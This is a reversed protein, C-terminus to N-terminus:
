DHIEINVNGNTQSVAPSKNGETTITSAPMTESPESSSKDILNVGLVSVKSGSETTVYAIVVLTLLLFVFVGLVSLVSKKWHAHLLDWVTRGVPSTPEAGSGVQDNSDSNM